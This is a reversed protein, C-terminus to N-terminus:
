EGKTEVVLIDYSGGFNSIIDEAIETLATKRYEVTTNANGQAILVIDKSDEEIKYEESDRADLFAMIGNNDKYIFDGEVARKVGGGIPYFEEGENAFTFCIDGNVKNLDHAGISLFNTVAHANYIDVIPNVRMFSGRRKINSILAESTPPFKKQSRGIDKIMNRYGLLVPNELANDYELAIGENKGIFQETEDNLGGLTYGFIRVAVIATIGIKIYEKDVSINM